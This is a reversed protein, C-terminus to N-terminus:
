QKYKKNLQDKEINTQSGGSNYQQTLRSKSNQRKKLNM